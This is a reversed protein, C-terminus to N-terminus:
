KPLSRAIGPSRSTGDAVDVGRTTIQVIQLKHVEDLTVLSQESLWQLETRFQDYSLSTGLEKLVRRLVVENSTYDNDQALEKLILLRAHELEFQKLSM